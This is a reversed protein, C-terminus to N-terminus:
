REANSHRAFAANKAGSIKVEGKLMKGGKVELYDM